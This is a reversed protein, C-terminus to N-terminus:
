PRRRALKERLSAAERELRDIRALFGFALALTAADLELDRGLRAAIRCPSACEVAFTWSSASVDLPALAGYEVLERLMEESLGSHVALESISIEYEDAHM